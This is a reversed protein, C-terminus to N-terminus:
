PRVQFLMKILKIKHQFQILQFHEPGPQEFNFVDNTLRKNFDLVYINCIHQKKQQFFTLIKQLTNSLKTPM